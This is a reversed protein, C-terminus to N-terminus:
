LRGLRVLWSARWAVGDRQHYGGSTGRSSAVGHDDGTVGSQLEHTTGPDLRGALMPYSCWLWGIVEILIVRTGSGHALRGESCSDGELQTFRLV